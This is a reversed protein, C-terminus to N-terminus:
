AKRIIKAGRAVLANSSRESCQKIKEYFEKANVFLGADPHKRGEMLIDLFEPEIYKLVPGGPEDLKAWGWMLLGGKRDPHEVLQNRVNRVGRTKDRLSNFFPPELGPERSAPIKDRHLELLIAASFALYYFSELYTEAELFMKESRTQPFDEILKMIKELIFITQDIRKLVTMLIDDNNNGYFWNQYWYYEQLANRAGYAIALDFSLPPPAGAEHQAKPPGSPTDPMPFDRRSIIRAALTLAV